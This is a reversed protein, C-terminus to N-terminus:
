PTQYPLRLQSICRGWFSHEPYSPARPQSAPPAPTLDALPVSLVRAQFHPRHPGPSSSGEGRLEGGKLPDKGQVVGRFGPSM